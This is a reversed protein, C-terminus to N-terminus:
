INVGVSKLNFVDVLYVRKGNISCRVYKHVRTCSIHIYGYHVKSNVHLKIVTKTIVLICPISVWSLYWSTYLSICVYLRYHTLLIM